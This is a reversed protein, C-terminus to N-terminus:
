NPLAASPTARLATSIEALETTVADAGARTLQDAKAPKTAYGIIAVGALRGALVDTASDGIFTCESPEADLLGVAARVRYPSPKMLDPDHDDRGIVARIYGTLHHAALYATIAAGSNNSVITVTRGTRYATIILDASGRAPRATAVARTEFVTLLHQATIAADDSITAVARFVELPDDESAAQDPVTFGAVRLTDRLQGAVAAAPTGAYISCIPGDFDLLLHRTGSIIQPVSRGTTVAPRPQRHDM